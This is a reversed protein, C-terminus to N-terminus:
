PECTRVAQRRTAHEVPAVAAKCTPGTQIEPIRRIPIDCQIRTWEVDTRSIQQRPAKAVVASFKAEIGTM